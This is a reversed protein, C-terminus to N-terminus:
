DASNDKTESEDTSSGGAANEKDVIRQSEKDQIEINKLQVELNVRVDDSVKRFSGM